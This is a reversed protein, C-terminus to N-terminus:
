RMDSKTGALAVLPGFHRYPPIGARGLRECVARVARQAASAPYGSWSYWELGSTFADVRVGRRRAFRVLSTLEPEVVTDRDGDYDIGELVLPSVREWELREGGSAPRHARVLRRLFRSTGGGRRCPSAGLPAGYQPSLLLLRGGPALVTIMEEVVREPEPLHELLSIGAVADFTGPAFPLAEGAARVFRRSGDGPADGAALKVALASLDCGVFRRGPAALAEINSGEGCGVELVTGREPLWRRLFAYEKGQAAAQRVHDRALEYYHRDHDWLERLLRQQTSDRSVAV